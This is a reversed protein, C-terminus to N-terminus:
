RPARGLDRRLMEVGRLVEEATEISLGEWCRRQYAADSIFADLAKGLDMRAAAKYAAAVKSWSEQPIPGTALRLAALDIADRSLFQRDGWRDSNALLKEAFCDPLTLCDVTAWAPRIGPDLAIRAERILEVKLSAGDIVAPFRIGYQDIRMERPFALGQLAEPRFLGPYGRQSARYRLDAYGDAQSCLFDVDQSERFEGLELAIRTGGGFLFGCRALLEADFAALLAAVRRHAPREFM